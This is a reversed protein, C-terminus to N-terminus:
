LCAKALRRAPASIESEPSVGCSGPAKRRFAPSPEGQEAGKRCGLEGQPNRSQANTNGDHGARTPKAPPKSSNSRSLLSGVRGKCASQRAVPSTGAQQQEAAPAQQTGEAAHSAEVVGQKMQQGQSGQQPHPQEAAQGPREVSRALRPRIPAKSGPWHQNLRKGAWRARAESV